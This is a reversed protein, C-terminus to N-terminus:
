GYILIMWVRLTAGFAALYDTVSNCSRSCESINCCNFDITMRCKIEGFPTGLKAGGLSCSSLLASVLNQTDSEIILCHMGLFTALELGKMCALTKAYTCKFCARSIRGQKGWSGKQNSEVFAGDPNIKYVGQPPPQWKEKRPEDKSGTM